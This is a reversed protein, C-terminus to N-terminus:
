WKVSIKDVVSLDTVEISNLGSNLPLNLEISAPTGGVFCWGGSAPVNYNSIPGGNISIKLSRAANAYYDVTVAYTGSSPAEVNNFLISNSNNTGINKVMRGQSANSCSTTVATGNLVASEAEYDVEVDDSIMIKDIVASNTFTINNNGANLYVVVPIDAPVAGEYCWIGAGTLAKTEVAGGNVQYSVSSNTKAFASITLTYHGAIDAHISGFELTKISNTTKVAKGASFNSCSSTKVGGILTADEAEYVVPGVGAGNYAGVNDGSVSLDVPNGFYDETAAASIHAFIGQGANPFPPEVVARGQDIAGSSTLLKYGEPSLSGNELYQPNNFIANSDKNTFGSAVTGYYMNNDIYLGSGASTSNLKQGMSAGSAIYFANNYVYTNEGDIDIGTTLSTGTLTKNIYVSNNYIYNHQSKPKDSPYQSVWLTNGHNDRFGDNVSINYRYTSYENNGLIEAFGGESDESYNYQFLVYKNSHDVHMGYSDGSGRAHKTVNYQALVNRTNFFWAGSGRGAMRPEEDAGPYEFLNNEVLINNTNGPTM